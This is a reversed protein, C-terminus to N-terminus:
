GAGHSLQSLRIKPRQDRPENTMTEEHGPQQFTRGGPTHQEYELKHGKSEAMIRVIEPVCHVATYSNGIFLVRLEEAQASLSCVIWLLTFFLSRTMGQLSESNGAM